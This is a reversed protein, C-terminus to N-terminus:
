FIESFIVDSDRGTYSGASPSPVPRSLATTDDLFPSTLSSFVDLTYRPPDDWHDVAWRQSNCACACSPSACTTQWYVSPRM